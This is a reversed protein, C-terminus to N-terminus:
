ILQRLPLSEFGRYRQWYALNAIQSDNTECCNMIMWATEFDTVFENHSFPKFYEVM